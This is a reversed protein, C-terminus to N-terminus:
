LKLPRLLEAGDSCEFRDKRYLIYSSGDDPDRVAPANPLAEIQAAGARCDNCFCNASTIPKGTAKLKVRGCACSATMVPSPNM